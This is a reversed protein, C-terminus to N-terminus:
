KTARGRLNLPLRHEHSDDLPGGEWWREQVKDLPSHLPIKAEVDIVHVDKCVHICRPKPGCRASYKRSGVAAGNQLAPEASQGAMSLELDAPVEVQPSAQMGSRSTGDSGIPGGCTRSGEMMGLPPLALPLWEVPLVDGAARCAASTSRSPLEGGDRGALVGLILPSVCSM